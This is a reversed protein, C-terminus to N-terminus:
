RQEELANEGGPHPKPLCTVEHKLPLTMTRGLPSPLSYATPRFSSTILGSRVQLSYTVTLLIEQKTSDANPNIPPLLSPTFQVILRKLLVVEDTGLDLKEKPVYSTCVNSARKLLISVSEHTTFAHSSTFIM